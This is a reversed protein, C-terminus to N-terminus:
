SIGIWLPCISQGSVSYCCPTITMILLSGGGGRVIVMEPTRYTQGLGDGQSGTRHECLLAAM